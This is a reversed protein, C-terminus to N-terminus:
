RFDGDHLLGNDQMRRKPCVAMRRGLCLFGASAPKRGALVRGQGARARANCRPPSTAYEAIENFNMYRYVSAKDADIVGMEKLYEEKSPLYGLRSPQWSPRAWICM